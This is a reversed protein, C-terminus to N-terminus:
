SPLDEDLAGRRVAELRATGAQVVPGTVVLLAVTVVIAGSGLHWGNVLVLGIGILPAGLTTVPSLLHLRTLLDRARVLGASSLLVVAVGAFVLVQAAVTM